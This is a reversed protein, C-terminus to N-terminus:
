LCQWSQSCEPAVAPSFTDDRRSCAVVKGGGICVPAGGMEQQEGTSVRSCSAAPDIRRRDGGLAVHAM